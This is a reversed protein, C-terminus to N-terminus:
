LDRLLSEMFNQLVFYHDRTEDKRIKEGNIQEMSMIYEVEERTIEAQKQCGSIELASSLFITSTLFTIKNM